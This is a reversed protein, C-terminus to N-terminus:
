SLTRTKRVYDKSLLGTAEQKIVVAYFAATLIMSGM